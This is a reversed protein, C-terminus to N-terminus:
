SVIQFIPGLYHFCIVLVQFFTIILLLMQSQFLYTSFLFIVLISRMGYYSYRECAENWVIYKIQGPFKSRPKNVATNM